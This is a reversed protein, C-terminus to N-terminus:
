KKVMVTAPDIDCIKLLNKSRTRTDLASVWTDIFLPSDLLDHFQRMESGDPHKSSTNIYNRKKTGFPLMQKTLKGSEYGKKVIEIFLEKWTSISVESNDWFRILTPPNTHRPPDFDTLPTWGVTSDDNEKKPKASEEIDIVPPNVESVSGYSLNSRWLLLLSLAVEANSGSSITVDMIRKQNWPVEKFVDYLEWSDGNTIVAYKIGEIVAYNVVQNTHDSLKEKLNKAEVLISPTGQPGILAYDPRQAKSDKLRYEVTVLDPDSVDWGLVTLLPDVLVTRTRTENEGLATSHSKIRERLTEICKVLDNLLM